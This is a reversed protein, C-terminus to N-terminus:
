KMWEKMEEELIDFPAPGTTLLFQHFEQASFRDGLTEQAQERLNLFELYGIFYSLYNAPEEVVTHFISAATEEDEYGFYTLYEKVDEQTWGEYHVCMDIYASLSLSFEDMLKMLKAEDKNEKVRSYTDYEVYTAWGETYGKYGLLNRVLSIGAENTYTTQYLHGPFGEHALTTYLGGDVYLPNIYIVNELADDIPPTLYFAPSLHEKLSDDVYKVTYITDPPQPYDELMEESLRALMEEPTGEAITYTDYTNVVSPNATMLDAIETLVDSLFAVTRRQLQRVSDGSGTETRVLYEYYRAGEPYYFLGAENKGTGKLQKLGDILLQYASVVDKTVLDINEKKYNEKEKESLGELRDIREEFTSILYNEEPNEIFQECQAVVEEVMYDPMFLGKESKLQEMEIIQTYTEDLTGLLELYDEVDTQTRFTYEAMLIPLEAQVGLTPSLAEGYLVLDKVSLEREVYDQLLKYTLQEEKNLESVHVKELKKQLSELEEYAEEYSEMTYKGFCIEYDKIGYNEPYAVTYHLNITNGKLEERFIEETMKTFDSTEENEKQSGTPQSSNETQSPSLTLHSNSCGAALLVAVICSCLITRTKKWWKKKM